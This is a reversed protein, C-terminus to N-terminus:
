ETTKSRRTASDYIFRSLTPAIFKLSCANSTESKEEVTDQDWHAEKMEGWRPPESVKASKEKLRGRGGEGECQIEQSRERTM